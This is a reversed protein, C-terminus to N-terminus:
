GAVRRRRAGVLLSRAEGAVYFSGTVLIPRPGSGAIRIAKGVGDTVRTPVRDPLLSALREPREARVWNSWTLVFERAFPRLLRLMARADKDRSCGFVITLKGLGLVRLTDALAQMSLVNHAGDLIWGDGLREFRAPLELREMVSQVAASELPGELLQAAVVALAANWGQHVGRFPMRFSVRRPGHKVSVPIRGDRGPREGVRVGFDVAPAGVARAEKEIVRRATSRQPGLVFPVGPKLIGAKERAIGALSTGLFEMHDYDVTNVVCVAPRLVNTADLRGGLGVEVVACDVGAHRFSEFAVATITEFFTPRVRRLLPALVRMSRVFSQKSIPRGDIRIREVLDKLHPSTYLGTRKGRSRLIAEVMHAVSGKGKTGAIHISRFATEPRGAAEM